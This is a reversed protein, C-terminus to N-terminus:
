GGFWRRRNGQDEGTGYMGALGSDGASTNVLGSHRQWGRAVSTASLSVTSAPAQKGSVFSSVNVKDATNSFPELDM